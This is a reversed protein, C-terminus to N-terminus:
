FFFAKVSHTLLVPFPHDTLQCHYDFTSYWIADMRSMIIIKKKKRWQSSSSFFFHLSPGKKKNVNNNTQKSIEPPSTITQSNIGIRNTLPRGARGNPTNTDTTSMLTVENRLKQTNNWRRFSTMWVLPIAFTHTVSDIAWCYFSVFFHHLFFFHSSSYVLADAAFIKPVFTLRGAGLWQVPQHVVIAWDITYDLWGGM